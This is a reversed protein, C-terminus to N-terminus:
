FSISLGGFLLDNEVEGGRLFQVGATLEVHEGVQVAPTFAFAQRTENEFGMAAYRAHLTLWPTLAWALEVAATDKAFGDNNEYAAFHAM